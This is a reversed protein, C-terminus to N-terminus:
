KGRKEIIIRVMKEKVEESENPYRKNVEDYIRAGEKVSKTNELGMKKGNKDLFETPRGNDDYIIKGETLAREYRENASRLFKLQTDLKKMFTQPSDSQKFLEDLRGPSTIDGMSARVAQQENATFQSGFMEHVLPIVTNKWYSVAEVAQDYPINEEGAIGFLRKGEEIIGGIKGPTTLYKLAAGNSREFMEKAKELNDVTATGTMYKGQTDSKTKSTPVDGTYIEVGKSPKTEKDIAKQYLEYKESGPEYKDREELLKGLSSTTEKDKKPFLINTGVDIFNQVGKNGIQEALVNAKSLALYAANKDGEKQAKFFDAQISLFERRSQIDMDAIGSVYGKITKSAGEVIPLGNFTNWFKQVKEPDSIGNASKEYKEALGLVTNMQTLEKDIQFKEEEMALRKGENIQQIKLINNKFKTHAINMGTNLGTSFGQLGAGLGMGIDNM